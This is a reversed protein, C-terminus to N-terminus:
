RTWPHVDTQSVLGAKVPNAQIYAVIKEWEYDDRVWRDFWEGQWFPGAGGITARIRKGTRGKLRKMIVSLEPANSSPVILVHCHNPMITFHPIQVAWEAVRSFEDTVIQAIRPERLPCAGIGADLYKDLTQFALRQTAAFQPSRAEINHLSQNIEHLREIAERPLSDACRFTVFYRAGEIEWHPLHHRRFRLTNVKPVTESYTLDKVQGL